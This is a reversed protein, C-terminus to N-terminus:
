EGYWVDCDQWGDRPWEDLGIMQALLDTDDPSWVAAAYGERVRWLAFVVSVYDGDAGYDDDAQEQILEVEVLIWQDDAHAWRGSGNANWTAVAGGFNAYSVLSKPDTFVDAGPDKQQYLVSFPPDSAWEGVPDFSWAAVSDYHECETTTNLTSDPQSARLKDVAVQISRIDFPM